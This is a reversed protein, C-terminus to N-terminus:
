WQFRAGVIPGHEVFDVGNRGSPGSQSYDVSLARYGIMAHMPLGLVKTDYGYIAVVQWSFKSGIGFGGIDSELSLERGPAIQHKLRGGIAPDVWELTGMRALAVTGSKRLRIGLQNLNQPLAGSLHLSVSANHQWYRASAIAELTTFSGKEAGDWRAVEYAVGSQIITETYDLQAKGKVTVNLGTLPSGQVNVHGPFGLDAWVVDAFLALRGRKAELYGMLAMLSNSKQVIEFFNDNIEVTNGRATVNGNINIMWGYPTFSFQWQSPQTAPAPRAAGSDPGLDAAVGIRVGSFFVGLTLATTALLRRHRHAM